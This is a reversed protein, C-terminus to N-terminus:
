LKELRKGYEQEVEKFLAGLPQNLAEYIVGPFKEKNIGFWKLPPTANGLDKLNPVDIIPVVLPKFEYRDNLKIKKIRQDINEEEFFSKKANVEKQEEMSFEIRAENIQKLAVAHISWIERIFSVPGLNWKISVLGGFVSNYIYEITNSDKANWTSMKTLIAPFSLITGGKSQKAMEQYVKIPIDILEDEKMDITAAKTVRGILEETSVEVENFIKNVGYTVFNLVTNKNEIILVQPYILSHPSIQIYM